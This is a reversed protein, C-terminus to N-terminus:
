DVLSQIMTIQRMQQTSPDVFRVEIKIAKLPKRNDVAQWVVTSASEQTKLGTGKQWDPEVPTPMTNNSTGGSICRYYFPAGYPLKSLGWSQTVTPPGSPFVIDGISYPTNPQWSPKDFVGGGGSIASPRFYTPRYPPEDADNQGTTPDPKTAPDNTTDLNTFSNWTDYVANVANIGSNETTRPGYPPSPATGIGLGTGYRNAPAYDTPYAPIVTNLNPDGVNVFAQALEDWIQIDFGHVNSLLLDEGRRTGQSFDEPGTIVGDIPDLTYSSTSNTPIANAPVVNNAANQPYRFDTDSCEQMTFRGIFAAGLSTDAYEKPRGYYTVGPIYRPSFGFRYYPKAIAVGALTKGSNDLCDTGLFHAFYATPTTISDPGLYASYDFDNWFPGTPSYRYGSSSNPNFLDPINTAPPPSPVNTDTPQPSTTFTPLPERILLQRRYLNGNRVYYIIEAVTSMGTNNKVVQTDDADPENGSTFNTLNLGKGFYTSTDKNRATITASVTLHLVDDVKSNCNNESYYLFGQRKGIFSEPFSTDENAAFPYVYRMTRKDLDAKLITQLTRSRQDNEALGRQKSISAGAMQFVQAFMTMMILVLTVAVLMEILTFGCRTSQPKAFRHRCRLKKRSRASM